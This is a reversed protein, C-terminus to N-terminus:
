RGARDLDALRTRAKAAEPTGPVDAIVKEFARRAESGNGLQLFAVGSALGARGAYAGDPARQQVDTFALIAQFFQGLQMYAEGIWYQAGIAFPSGHKARVFDRLTRIADEYAGARLADLGRRYGAPLDRASERHLGDADLELLPTPRPTPLATRAASSAGPVRTADGADDREQEIMGLRQEIPVLRQEVSRRAGAASGLRKGLAGVKEELQGVRAELAAVRERLRVNDRELTATRTPLVCGGAVALM